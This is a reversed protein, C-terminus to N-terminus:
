KEGNDIEKELIPLESKGDKKDRLVELLQEIKESQEIQIMLSELFLVVIGFIFLVLFTSIIVTPLPLKTITFFFVYITGFILLSWAIGLFLNLLRKLKQSKM